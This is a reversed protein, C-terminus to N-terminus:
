DVQAKFDRMYATVSVDTVFSPMEHFTRTSNSM